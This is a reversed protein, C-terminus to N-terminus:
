SRQQSRVRAVRSLELATRVEAQARRAAHELDETQRLAATLVAVLRSNPTQPEGLLVHLPVKLRRALIRAARLSIRTQGSEVLSVYGKSFDPGALQAQTM